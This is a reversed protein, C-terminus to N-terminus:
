FSCTTSLADSSLQPFSFSLLIFSSTRSFRAKMQTESVCAGSNTGRRATSTVYKYDRSAFLLRGLVIVLM